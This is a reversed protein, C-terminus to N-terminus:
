FNNYTQSSDIDCQLESDYGPVDLVHLAYHM